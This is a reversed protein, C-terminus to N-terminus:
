NSEEDKMVKEMMGDILVVDDSYMLNRCLERVENALVYMVCIVLLLSLFSGQHVCLEM